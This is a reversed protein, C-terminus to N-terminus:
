WFILQKEDSLVAMLGLAPDSLVEKEMEYTVLNWYYIM